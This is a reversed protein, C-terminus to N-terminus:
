NGEDAWSLERYEAETGVNDDIGNQAPCGIRILRVIKSNRNICVVDFLQERITGKPRPVIIGAPTENDVYKDCATIFVPIGAPTHTMRDIHTHGQLVCCIEGGNNVFNDMIAITSNYRSEVVLPYPSINSVYYLSHMIIVAAWGSEMNLAVNQFWARQAASAESNGGIGNFANNGGGTEYCALVIYRIKARENDIYYYHQDPNGNYKEHRSDFRASIYSSAVNNFPEHNGIAFYARNWVSAQIAQCYNMITDDVDGGNGTDGGDFVKSMPTRDYLYRILAPSNQANYSGWHADTIFAFCDGTAYCSDMYTNVADVKGSMYGSNTYYEPVFFDYRLSKDNVLRKYQEDPDIINPNIAKPQTYATINTGVELQFETPIMDMYPTDAGGILLIRIYAITQDDPIYQFENYYEFVSFSTRKIFSSDETSSYEFIFAYTPKVEPENWSIIYHKTPDISIKEQTAAYRKGSDVLYFEGTDSNIGANLFPSLINKSLILYKEELSELMNIRDNISENNRVYLVTNIDDPSDYVVSSDIPNAGVVVAYEGDDAITFDGTKKGISVFSNTGAKKVLPYFCFGSYNSLSIIDGKHLNINYGNATRVYYSRAVPSLAGGSINYDGVEMVPHFLGKTIENYNSKIEADAKYLGDSLESVTGNLETIRQNGKTIINVNSVFEYVDATETTDDNTRAILIRYENNANLTASGSYWDSGTRTGSEYFTLNVRFGSNIVIQINETPIIINKSVVRYKTSNIEGQADLGGRQFPSLMLVSTMDTYSNDIVIDIASKLGTVEDGMVIQTWHSATWEEATLIDQNAKYLNGNNTCYDKGATYTSSSSYPRAVISGVNQAATNATQAATNAATIAAQAAEQAAVVDSIDPVVDGADIVTETSGMDIKGVASYICTTVGSQTNFINFTFRGQVNYCDQHLRVVADGDVISGQLFITTGNARIFKGSVSGAVIQKEGNKRVSIIFEHAQNETTFLSGNLKEATIPADLSSIRKIPIYQAAM